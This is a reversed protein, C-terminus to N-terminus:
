STSCVTTIQFYVPIPIATDVKTSFTWVASHTIVLKRRLLILDESKQFM